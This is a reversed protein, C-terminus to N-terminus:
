LKWLWAVSWLARFSARRPWLSTTSGWVTPCRTSRQEVPRAPMMSSRSSSTKRPPPRPHAYWRLSRLGRSLRASVRRRRRTRCRCSARGTWRRRSRPSHMRATAAARSHLSLSYGRAGVSSAFSRFAVDLERSGFRKDLANEVVLVGVTRTKGTRLARASGVAQDNLREIERQVVARTCKSVFEGRGHVVNSVTMVSVNAAEAVDKLTVRGKPALSVPRGDLASGSAAGHSERPDDPSLASYNKSSQRVVHWRRQFDLELDAGSACGVPVESRRPGDFRFREAPPVPIPAARCPRRWAASPRTGFM